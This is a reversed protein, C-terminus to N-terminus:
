SQCHYLIVETFFIVASTCPFVVYMYLHLHIHSTGNFSLFQEQMHLQFHSKFKSFVCNKLVGLLKPVPRKRSKRNQRNHPVLSGLQGTSIQSQLNQKSGANSSLLPLHHHQINAPDLFAVAELVSCNPQPQIIGDETM